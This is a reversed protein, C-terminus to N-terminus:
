PSQLKALNQNAQNFYPSQKNRETTIHSPLGREQTSWYNSGPQINQIRQNTIYNQIM